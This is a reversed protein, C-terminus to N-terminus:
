EINSKPVLTLPIKLLPISYINTAIFLLSLLAITNSPTILFARPASSIVGSNAISIKDLVFCREFMLVNTLAILSIRYALVAQMQETCIAATLGIIILAIILLIRKWIKMQPVEFAIYGLIPFPLFMTFHAVKDAPLGLWLEPLQPVDEPKAFCLYAVAAIYLCFIIIYIIRRSFM